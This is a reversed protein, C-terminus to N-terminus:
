EWIMKYVIVEKFGSPKERVCYARGNKLVVDCVGSTIYDRLFDQYGLGARAIRVGESSFIDCLFSGSAPDRDFTSALLHGHEDISLSQFPPFLQLSQFYERTGGGMAKPLQDLIEKKYTDSVPLSPFIARIIRKMRGELDFVAIDRSEFGWNVFFASPSVGLIPVYAMPNPGAKTEDDPLPYERIDAIKRLDRDFLGLAIKNFIMEKNLPIYPALFNGNSLPKMWQALFRTDGIVPTQRLFRGLTDFVVIKGESLLRIEGSESIGLLRPFEVEGPGQGVEAFSKLFHGDKEFQFAFPGSGVARRILYIKGLSDVGLSAIDSLGAKALAEDELDIRFEERLSLSSPQGPVAYIGTGNDVVEVGNEVSRVPGAPKSSCSVCFAAALFVFSRWWGKSIM